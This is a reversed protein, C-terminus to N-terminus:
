RSKPARGSIISRYLQNDEDRRTSQSLRQYWDDLLKTKPKKLTLILALLLVGAAGLPGIFLIGTFGIPLLNDIESNDSSHNWLLWLLLVILCHALILTSTTAEGLLGLIGLAIEAFILLLFRGFVSRKIGPKPSSIDAGSGVEILGDPAIKLPRHGSPRDNM